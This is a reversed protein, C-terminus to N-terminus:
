IPGGTQRRIRPPLGFPPRNLPNSLDPDNSTAITRPPSPGDPSGANGDKFTVLATGHSNGLHDRLIMRAEHRGSPLPSDREIVVILMAQASEDAPIYDTPRHDGPSFVQAQNWFESGETGEIQVRILRLAYDPTLNTVTCPMQFTVHM